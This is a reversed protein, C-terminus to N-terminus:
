PADTEEPPRPVPINGDRRRVLSAYQLHAAVLTTRRQQSPAPALTLGAVPQTSWAILRLSDGNILQLADVLQERATMAVVNKKEETGTHREIEISAHPALTDARGTFSGFLRVEELTLETNNTLKARDPSLLEFKFTGLDLMQEARYMSTSNSEVVFDELKIKAQSADNSPDLRSLRLVGEPGVNPTDAAAFPLIITTPEASALSYDTGLSNYVAGFRSVHARAYVPQLEVVAIESMSRAFGIDLEAIRVVAAAFLLSIVPAAFWAWEIRGLLYFLLGNLPVLVILYVGIITVVIGVSPIVIGAEEQLLRRAATVAAGDDRWAANGPGVWTRSATSPGTFADRVAYRVDSIERPDYWSTTQKQQWVPRQVKRNHAIDDVWARPSRGLLCGNVFGDFSPWETLERQTLRFATVIIRGRGIEREVVLPASGDDVGLLTRGHEAVALQVGRWPRTRAPQVADITWENLPALATADLEKTGTSRAPLYPGLFSRSLTELSDPGAVIMRGGWHLWDVLARRQEDSLLEPDYGDWLLCATTTWGSFHSALPARRLDDALVFRYHAYQEIPLLDDAPTALILQLRGLFRYDTPRAALVVFLSQHHRLTFTPKRTQFDIPSAGDSSLELQLGAARLSSETQGVSARTGNAFHADDAYVRDYINPTFIWQEAIRVDGTPFLVPRVVDLRRRQPALRLQEGQMGTLESTLVGRYDAKTSEGEVWLSTWHGPKIFLNQREWSGPLSITHPLDLPPKPQEKKAAASASDNSDAAPRIAPSRSATDVKWPQRYAVAILAAAILALIIFRRRSPSGM